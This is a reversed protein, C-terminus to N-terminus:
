DFQVRQDDSKVFAALNEAFESAAAERDVEVQHSARHEPQPIQARNGLPGPIARILEMDPRNRAVIEPGPRQRTLLLEFNSGFNQLFHDCLAWGIGVKMARNRIPVQPSPVDSRREAREAPCEAVAYLRSLETVQM